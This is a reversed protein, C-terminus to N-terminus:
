VLVHRRKSDNTLGPIGHCPTTGSDNTLTMIGHTNLCRLTFIGIDDTLKRRGHNSSHDATM